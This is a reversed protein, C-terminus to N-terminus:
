CIVLNWINHKNQIVNLQEMNNKVNWYTQGGRRGVYDGYNSLVFYTVSCSLLIFKV